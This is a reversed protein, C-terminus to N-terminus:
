MEVAVVKVNGVVPILPPLLMVQDEDFEATILGVVPTTVIEFGATATVKVAVMWFPVAVAMVRLNSMATPCNAFVVM